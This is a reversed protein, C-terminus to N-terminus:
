SRRRFRAESKVKLLVEGPGAQPIERDRVELPTNYQSLVMTKM